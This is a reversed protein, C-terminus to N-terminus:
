YAKQPQLRYALEVERLMKDLMGRDLWKGSLVVGEISSTNKIDTLPNKNLLVLNANKGESITGENGYSNLYRAPNVTSARLIEVPTLGSEQLLEFEKHLSFGVIVMGYTDSGTLLKVRNDLLIRAFNKMWNFQAAFFEKAPLADFIGNRIKRYDNKETLFSERENIALYRVLSDQKLAAFKDDDMCKNIFDFVSLTTGIYIGSERLGNALKNLEGAPQKFYNVGKERDALYLFEEIHEISKM